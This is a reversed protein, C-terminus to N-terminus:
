KPNVSLYAKIFEDMQENVADRVMTTLMATGSTGTAGRSSWTRIGGAASKPDAQQQLEVKVDYLYDGQPRRLDALIRLTPRGPTTSAATKTLVKIGAQRLKLEVDGQVMSPELNAASLEPSIGEVLVQVGKLGKLAERQVDGDAAAAAGVTILSVLALLAVRGM